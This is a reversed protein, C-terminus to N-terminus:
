CVKQISVSEAGTTGLSPQGSSSILPKVYNVPAASAKQWDQMQLPSSQQQGPQTPGSGILHWSAESAQSLVLFSTFLHLQFGFTKCGIFLSAAM